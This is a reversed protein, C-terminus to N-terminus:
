FGTNLGEELESGAGNEIRPGGKFLNGNVIASKAEEGLRIHLKEEGFRSGQVIVSGGTVDISPLGKGSYDWHCFNCQSM